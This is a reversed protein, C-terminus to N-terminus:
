NLYELIMKEYRDKSMFNALLNIREKISISESKIFKDLEENNVFLLCKERHRSCSVYTHARDMLHSYYVM